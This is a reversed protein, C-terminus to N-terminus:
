LVEGADARMEIWKLGMYRHTVYAYSDCSHTTKEVVDWYRDAYRKMHTVYAYSDCLHITKVVAGWCRDANRDV